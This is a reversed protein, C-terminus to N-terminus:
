NLLKLPVTLMIELSGRYLSPLARNVDIGKFAKDSWTPILSWHKLIIKLQSKEAIIVQANRSCSFMYSNVSNSVKLNLLVVIDELIISWIFTELSDNHIPCQWIQMSPLKLDCTCHLVTGKFLFYVFNNPFNINVTVYNRFNFIKV